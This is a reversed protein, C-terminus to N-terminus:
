HSVDSARSVVPSRGGRQKGTRLVIRDEAKKATGAGEGTAEVSPGLRERKVFQEDLVATSEASQAKAVGDPRGSAMPGERDGPVRALSTHRLPFNGFPAPQHVLGLVSRLDWSWSMERVSDSGIPPKALLSAGRLSGLPSLPILCLGAAASPEPVRPAKELNVAASRFM